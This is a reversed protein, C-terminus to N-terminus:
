NMQVRAKVELQRPAEGPGQVNIKVLPRPALQYYLYYYIWINPRTPRIGDISLVEDGPRLGQTEAASHPKVETIYCHDGFMKMQWGYEISSQRQPPIFSTHSDNFDLLVQAIVGFIEANSKTVKIKNEATKFRGEIDIGHFTPDYYHKSIDDKIIKLMTAGRDRDQSGFSQAGIPQVCIIGACANFAILLAAVRIISFVSHTLDM